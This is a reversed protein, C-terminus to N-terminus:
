PFVNKCQRCRSSLGTWIQGESNVFASLSRLYCVVGDPCAGWGFSLLASRSGDEFEGLGLEVATLLRVVVVSKVVVVIRASMCVYLGASLVYVSALCSSMVERM